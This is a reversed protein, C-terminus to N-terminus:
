DEGGLCVACGYRRRYRRAAWARYTRRSLAVVGPWLLPRFLWGWRTHSWARVTAEVGTLWEGEATRLHLIRLLQERRPLGRGSLQHIDSLQLGEGALRRLARIERLCLPCQGDYYLTDPALNM